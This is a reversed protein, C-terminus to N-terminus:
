DVKGIRVAKELDVWWTTEVPFAYRPMTQPNGFMDWVGVTHVPKYWQPVWYHGARLVRDLARAATTMDARTPALIAKDVLADVVPDSIGALNYSGSTEAAQSTWFQRISAGLTPSMAFRRACVDFDFENLRAQYQAPDVLRFRARIGILNLNRVFPQVIREFSQANSLFEFEFPKGDPGHLTDGERTYGAEQMLKAAKSLMKRDQGSANSVPALVADGFVSDPVQGRFPELLALQAADPKGEAKMESNEFFSQTRTYLDFFLAQNSWEFDFCMGIAQRVRPDAFKARRTNFFWGQAGAPRHDPYEKKAVRGDVLSPFTYETAWTKSSFEEHYTVNGKKFAEFAAQRERFFDLRIVSFNNQGRVVPLDKAWYDEVAQYEIFRGIEHRGVTYPGSSLPPTLTSQAFDYRTYYKQSLIPMVAVLLPLQNSHEGSFTVLLNRLDKAEASVMEKLVQRIQPHGKEKLINLSFAVDEATLPSGDHFRAEDRLYFTVSNGDPAVKAAEAVLGYVADPEDYARVMLSDFCLEMRPPADGKLIFTNFTNYTQPNQNYSWSPATLVIRGGKPAEPNVYDFNTFDPGYKLDGFVSLGHMQSSAFAPLATAPLSLVAAGAASLKIFDRRNIDKGAIM